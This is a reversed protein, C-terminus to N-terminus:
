WGSLQGYIKLLKIYSLDDLPPDERRLQETLKQLVELRTIAKTEKQM